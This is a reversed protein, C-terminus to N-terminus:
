LRALRAGAERGAPDGNAEQRLGAPRLARGEAGVLGHGALDDEVRAHDAVWLADGVGGVGPLDEAERRQM